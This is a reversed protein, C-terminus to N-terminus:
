PQTDGVVNMERRKSRSHNPWNQSLTPLARKFRGPVIQSM